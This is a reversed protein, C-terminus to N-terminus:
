LVTHDPRRRIFGEYGSYSFTDGQRIARDIDDFDAWFSGLPQDEWYPGGTWRDGWSQHVLFLRRGSPTTRRSTVGMSHSWNGRRRIAGDSDRDANWGINSCMNFPYANGILVWAEDANNVRTTHLVKHDGAATRLDEPVGYRAWYRARKYDYSQLDESYRSDSQLLTGWERIAKAAASGYSGDWRGLNGSIERSAGYCWDPSFTGAFAEPERRVAIDAAALIDLPTATGFGVCTGAPNQNRSLLQGQDNLWRDPDGDKQILNTLFRYNLCDVEDDEDILQDVQQAYIPPLSRVFAETAEEDPKWGQAGVNQM